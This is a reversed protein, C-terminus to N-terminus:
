RQFSYISPLNLIGTLEDLSRRSEELLQPDALDGPELRDRYHREVWNVLEGYLTQDLYLRGRLHHLERDSLVMRQRLCAPGGGNRMSERLNFSVIEQIPNNRDEVWESLLDSVIGSQLCEGPVALLMRRDKMSLLQSNFLYTKVAEELNLRDKGVEVLRLSHGTLKLFAQSIKEVDKRGGAFAQEHLLLVDRHGVCIVDNHFVGSDVADPSQQVHLVWDEPLHHLRAIAQTSQLTQRAPFQKTTAQERALANRGYVFVHLGPESHSRCLRTHNAAGEDSMVDGGPLPPHVQFSLEDEFITRLLRHTFPAEISRHLNSNLNAPTFHARNDTSDCSPSMMCANATWMSSASSAAALLAPAERSARSLIDHDTPGTMGWEKLAHISPREHPPLIAQHFGWDALTKAKLLGQLAATRPNSRHARNATSAINGISLGAYNHTPGVLGDFNIEHYKM